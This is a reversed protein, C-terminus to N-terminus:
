EVYIFRNGAWESSRKAVGYMDVKANTYRTLTPVALSFTSNTAKFKLNFALGGQWDLLYRINRANQNTEYHNTLHVMKKNPLYAVIILSKDPDTSDKLIDKAENLVIDNAFKDIKEIISANPDFNLTNFSASNTLDVVFTIAADFPLNLGQQDYNAGIYDGVGNYIRGEYFFLESGYNNVVPSLDSVEFTISNIGLRIEDTETTWWVWFKKKQHKTSVGISKVLLYNQNWFKTKVRYDDNQFKDICHQTNGFIRSWYSQRPSCNELGNIFQEAYGFNDGSNSVTGTGGNTVVNCDDVRSFVDIYEDVPRLEYEAPGSCETSNTSNWVNTKLSIASEELYNYLRETNDKNVIYLGADTYKYVDDEVQIEGGTNLLSAYEDDGIIEEFDDFDEEAGTKQKYGIKYTPRVGEYLQTIPENEYDIIPRISKFGDLYVQELEKELITRDTEKLRKIETQLNTRSEFVLRGEEIIYINENPEEIDVTNCSNIFTISILLIVTSLLEYKNPTQHKTNPTQHKTNPTQHKTYINFM